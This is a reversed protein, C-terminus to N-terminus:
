SLFTFLKVMTFGKPVTECANSVTHFGWQSVFLTEGHL